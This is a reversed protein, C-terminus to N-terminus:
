LLNHKTYIDELQERTFREKEPYLKSEHELIEDITWIRKIPKAPVGGCICYPPMSKNVVAGAAVTCGRGIIVGSLITVNCGIWCDEEIVVDKDYGKPKIDETVDTIFMGLIRAHNGTHVTLGEAIACNRKITFDANYASIYSNAALNTNEYLYINKKRDLWLPPTLSVNDALYGFGVRNCSFYRKYFFYLGRIFRNNKLILVLSMYILM